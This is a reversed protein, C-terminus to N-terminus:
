SLFSYILKQKPLESDSFKLAQNFIREATDLKSADSTYLTALLDGSKIKDATKKELIIGATYDIADEKKERGAGLSAAAEGIIEADMASVYGDKAARIQRSFKACEFLETNEAYAPDAGQAHLWEKFKEFAIGSSVSEKVKQAAVDEAYGLSLHVMMAALAFSVEVLDSPGGGRLVEIAEKVELANGIARGLPVDMNTILAATRRGSMNGIKVMNEALIKADEPTKMFAGSGCKVDLVISHAGSPLKKGMISSTILPISDVTATVDRLAYLKKDAPALNGSQGVVSIGIDRVQNRFKEPSLSVDYGPFSELKDITGGTHGLGRGSMKAVKCGLSAAIPAVILTTKDGVGGTSHKDVTLNGFESLDISDGSNSIAETLALTEEGNMGRLCIAMLLASMQYDPIIGDTFLRVTESIEEKTLEEGHKKKQIVDYIRM